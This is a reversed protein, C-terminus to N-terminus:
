SYEEDIRKVWAIFWRVVELLYAGVVYGVAFKFVLEMYRM